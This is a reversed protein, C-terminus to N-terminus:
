KRRHSECKLKNHRRREFLALRSPSPPVKIIAVAVRIRTALAISVLIIVAELIVIIWAM